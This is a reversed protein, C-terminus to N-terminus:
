ATERVPVIQFSYRFVNEPDYKAKLELLRQYNEPTFGDKGRSLAEQMIMFNLYVGGRVYPKLAERFQAIYNHMAERDAATPTPGGMQMFIEADRNSIANADPAVRAIAGGAHRLEVMAFTSEPASVYRVITDMADDSLERFTEQSGYGAGPTTPDNSITAIESFPMERLTSAAPACWDIWQQMLAAGKAPDGTYASHIIVQRKGRIAEPLQPWSPYKMFAISSTMEDPVTKIWDRFFRLADNTVEPPYILNGGYLTAVPYLDFGLATVVGFNGAGGRLGWFLDSNETASAHRLVGDATVVDVWRVSDGALGYRRGLWGIGGGLTYGVVGVHPTSGLLPALGHPITVDMVDQWIAGAQAEATQADANVQVNKMQSTVVLMNGDALNQQGHGTSQVGVNLGNERAFRVAAVVDQPNHPVVIIAPYQDITLNHGRRVDNYNTDDPTIVSGAIQNQLQQVAADNHTFSM